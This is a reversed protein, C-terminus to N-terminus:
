ASYFFLVFFIFVVVLLFMIITYSLKAASGYEKLRVFCDRTLMFPCLVGFPMADYALSVSGDIVGLGVSPYDKKQLNVVVFNRDDSSGRDSMMATHLDVTSKSLERSLVDSLSATSNRKSETGSSKQSSSSTRPAPQVIVDVSSKEPPDLASLDAKLKTTQVSTQDSVHKTSKSAKGKRNVLPTNEESVPEDAETIVELVSFPLSATSAGPSQSSCQQESTDKTVEIAVSNSTTSQQQPSVVAIPRRGEEPSTM